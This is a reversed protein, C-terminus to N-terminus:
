QNYTFAGTKQLCHSQLDSHIRKEIEHCLEARVGSQLRSEVRQAVQQKFHVLGNTATSVKIWANFQLGALYNSEQKVLNAYFLPHLICFTERYMEKRGGGIRSFIGRASKM